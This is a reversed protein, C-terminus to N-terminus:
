GSSVHHYAEANGDIDIRLHQNENRAYLVVSLDEVPGNSLNHVKVKNGGFHIDYGFRMFNMSPGFRRRGTDLRGIDRVLNAVNYRQHRLLRRMSQSTKQLYESVTLNPRLELRLPLENSVM